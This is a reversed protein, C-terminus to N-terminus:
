GRPFQLRRDFSQFAPKLGIAPTARRPPTIEVLLLDDAVIRDEVLDVFALAATSGARTHLGTITEDLVYESTVPVYAADELAVDLTACLEHHPDARNALALFAWTDYFFARM